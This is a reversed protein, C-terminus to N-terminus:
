LDVRMLILRVGYLKYVIDNFFKREADFGNACVSPMLELRLKVPMYFIKSHFMMIDFNTRWLQIAFYLTGVEGIV